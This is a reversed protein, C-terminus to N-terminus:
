DSLSMVQVEFHTHYWGLRCILEAVNKHRDWVLVQIEFATHLPRKQTRHNSFLRPKNICYLHFLQGDWNLKRKM